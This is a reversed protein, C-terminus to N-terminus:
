TYRWTQIMQRWMKLVQFLYFIKSLKIIKMLNYEKNNFIQKMKLFLIYDFLIKENEFM